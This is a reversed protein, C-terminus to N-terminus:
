TNLERRLQEIEAAQGSNEIRLNDIVQAQYENLSKLSKITSLLISKGAENVSGNLLRGYLVVAETSWENWELGAEVWAIKEAETLPTM